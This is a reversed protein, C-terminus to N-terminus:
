LNALLQRGGGRRPFSGILGQKPKLVYIVLAQKVPIIQMGQQM